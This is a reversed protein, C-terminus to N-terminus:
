KEEKREEAKKLEELRSKIQNLEAKIEKSQNELFAIEDERNFTPIPTNWNGVYGTRWWGRGRGYGMGRGFIRGRSMGLGPGPYMFGPYPYGACYGMGRGTMSGWGGPGTRDGRPM